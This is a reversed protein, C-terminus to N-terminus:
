PKKAYSSCWGTAVVAKGAYLPCPGSPAGAAGMFLSCSACAQGAQYQAFKTKDVKTADAKYGLAQAMPDSESLLPLSDDAWALGSLTATAALVAGNRLIKRRELDM